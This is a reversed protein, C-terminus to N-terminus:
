KGMSKFFRVGLRAVIIAGAVPLVVPIIAALTTMAQTAIGSLATTLATAFAEMPSLVVETM